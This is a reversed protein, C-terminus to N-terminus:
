KSRELDRLAEVAGKYGWKISLKFAEAAKEKNGLERNADGMWYYAYSKDEVKDKHFLDVAIKHMKISENYMGKEYYCGGLNYYANAKKPDIEIIRRYYMAAVDFQNRDFVISALGFLAKTMKPNIDLAIGFYRMAKEYNYRDYYIRGILFWGDYNDRNMSIAQRLNYLAKDPQKLEYFIVGLAFYNLDDSPDQAIAEEIQIRASRFDGRYTYKQAALQYKNPKNPRKKIAEDIAAIVFIAGLALLIVINEHRAIWEQAESIHIGLMSIKVGEQRLFINGKIFQTPVRQRVIIMGYNNMNILYFAARTKIM